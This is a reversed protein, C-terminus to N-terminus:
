RTGGTVVHDIDPPTHPRPLNVHPRNRPSSRHKAAAAGSRERKKKRLHSALGSQRLAATVDVRESSLGANILAVFGAEKQGNSDSDRDVQINQPIKDVASDVTVGVM